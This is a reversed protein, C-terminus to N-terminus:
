PNTSRRAPHDMAEAAEGTGEVRMAFTDPRVVILRSPAHGAMTSGNSLPLDLKKAIFLRTALALADFIAEVRGGYHINRSVPVGLAFRQDEVFPWYPVPALENVVLSGVRTGKDVEAGDIVLRSNIQISLFQALM